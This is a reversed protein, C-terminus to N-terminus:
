INQGQTDSILCKNDLHEDQAFCKAGNINNFYKNCKVVLLGYQHVLLVCISYNNIITFISGFFDFDFTFSYLDDSRVSFM